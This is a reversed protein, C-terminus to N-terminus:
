GSCSVQRHCTSLSIVGAFIAVSALGPGPNGGVSCQLSGRTRREMFFPAHLEGSGGLGCSNPPLASWWVDAWGPLAPFDTRLPDLRRLRAVLGDTRGTDNPACGLSRSNEDWRLSMPWCGGARKNMPLLEVQRHCTSPPIFSTRSTTMVVMVGFPFAVRRKTM